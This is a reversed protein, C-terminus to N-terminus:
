SLKMGFMVETPSLVFSNCLMVNHNGYNGFVMAILYTM